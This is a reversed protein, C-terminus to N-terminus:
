REGLEARNHVRDAGNCQACAAAARSRGGFRDSDRGARHVCVTPLGAFRTTDKPKNARAGQAPLHDRVRKWLPEAPPEPGSPGPPYGAAATDVDAYSKKTLSAARRHQTEVNFTGHRASATYPSAYEDILDDYSAKVEHSDSSIAATTNPIYPSRGHYQSYADDADPYYPQSSM